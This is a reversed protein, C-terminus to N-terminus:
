APDIATHVDCLWRAVPNHHDVVRGIEAALLAYPKRGIQGVGGRLRPGGQIPAAAPTLLLDGDLVDVLATLSTQNQPALM